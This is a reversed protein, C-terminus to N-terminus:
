DGFAIVNPLEWMSKNSDDAHFGTEYSGIESVTESGAHVYLTAEPGGEVFMASALDLEKTALIRAFDSMSYPTRAHIFVVTGDRGTGIAAASYIKPDKWAIAQGDCDLLRYNQVVTAYDRRVKALDFDKCDRGFAAVRPLGDRTPEWALYGGLKSDDRPQLARGSQVMLGTSRGDELFMSANIVGLARAFTAWEDARRAQGATAKSLLRLKQRAPDVRVLTICRDGVDVTPEIPARFRQLRV